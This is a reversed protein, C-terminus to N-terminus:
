PFFFLLLLLFNIVKNSPICRDPGFMISFSTKDNFDEPEFFDSAELLKIYAGGCTLSNQAKM